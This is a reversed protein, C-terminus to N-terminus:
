VILSMMLQEAELAMHQQAAVVKGSFYVDGARGVWWEYEVIAQDAEQGGSM